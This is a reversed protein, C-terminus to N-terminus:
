AFQSTGRISDVTQRTTARRGVFPVNIMTLVIRPIIGPSPGLGPIRPIMRKTLHSRTASEEAVKGEKLYVTDTVTDAAIDGADEVTDEVPDVNDKRTRQNTAKTRRIIRRIKQLRLVLLQNALGM